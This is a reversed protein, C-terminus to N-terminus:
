ALGREELDDEDWGLHHGIEHLLTIRLEEKVEDRDSAIREINRQFIEIRNLSPQGDLYSASLLDTGSYVGLTLPDIETAHLKRDPLPVVSINVNHLASQVDDPLSEIVEHVLQEVEAESLRVPAAFSERDLDAAQKFFLEAEARQNCFELVLSRYYLSLASAGANRDYQDLLQLAQEFQWLHFRAVAELSDVEADAPYLSRMEGYVPLAERARGAEILCDALLVLVEPELEGREGASLTRVLRRAKTAENVARDANGAELEHEARGFLM